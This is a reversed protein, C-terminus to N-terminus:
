RSGGEKPGEDGEALEDLASVGPPAPEESGAEWGQSPHVTPTVAEPYSQAPHVADAAGLDLEQRGEGERTLYVREGAAHVAFSKGGLQGTLYLPARPLGKQALELANDAVRKRLTKLVEPAAGFFRDAPVLSGIGQHPRLFNYHDIYLGIRRRADEVDLFVSAEVCERWLSGWFRETKGVTQPRKPHAVIHKIGQKDLEKRFASTGRWTVYQPGNDSLVEEPRGYSAIAARLTEIVLVTTPSAYLGYGTIFRSHDDLFAVVYVRRNQRKLVFTFLDTQWLQNPRAREFRRVPEEHPRTVVEELEYGAEKLVTAVAGPGAALAPGRALLDSIRQCGYEPHAEKLLVITRKTVEPLRSGGRPGRPRDLLAEPGGVELKRRWDGLTHPSRGVVTAFDDTTLGSRKWLDLLLLRQAGGLDKSTKTSKRVLRRGPAGRRRGALLVQPGVEAGTSEGTGAAGAVPCQGGGEAFEGLEGLRSAVGVVAGDRPAVAGCAGGGGGPSTSCCSPAGGCGGAVSGPGGGPAGASPAASRDDSRDPESREGERREERREAGLAGQGQGEGARREGGSSAVRGEVADRRVEDM